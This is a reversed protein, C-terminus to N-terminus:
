VHARGIQSVSLLRRGTMVRQSPAEGLLRRGSTEILRLLVTLGPDNTARRRIETWAEDSAVMLRPHGAKLGALPDDAATAVSVSAAMLGTGVFLVGLGFILRKM